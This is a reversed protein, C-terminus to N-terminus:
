SCSLRCLERPDATATASPHIMVLNLHAMAAQVLADDRTSTRSEVREDILEAVLDADPGEYVQTIYGAWGM